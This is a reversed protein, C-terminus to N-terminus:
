VEGLFEFGCEKLLFASYSKKIVSPFSSREEDMETYYVKEHFMITGRHGVVAVKGTPSIYAAEGGSHITKQEVMFTLWEDKKM